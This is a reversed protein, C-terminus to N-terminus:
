PKRALAYFGAALTERGIAGLDDDLEGGRERLEGLLGQLRASWSGERMLPLVADIQMALSKSPTHNIKAGIDVIEFGELVRRLGSMTMNFYHDPDGHLPQMFATDVFFLGGPALIRAVERAAAHPDPLHEFTALSFVLPFTADRFPLRPHSSCVDVNPFHILDFNVVNARLRDPSPIGAGFDLAVGDFDALLKEVYSGLRHTPRTDLLRLLPLEGPPHFHPVGAIVTAATDAGASPEGYARLRLPGGEPHALMSSLDFGRERVAPSYRSEVFTYAREHLVCVNGTSDTACVTVTFRAGDDYNAPLLLDGLFGAAAARPADLRARGVDARQVRQLAVLPVADIALSLAIRPWDPWPLWWGAFRAIRPLRDDVPIDLFFEPSTM